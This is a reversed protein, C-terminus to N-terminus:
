WTTVTVAVTPCAALGNAIATKETADVTLGFRVKVVVWDTLYECRFAVITPLWAAPDRDSKSSNSSKSVARLSRPDGLDNAFARRKTSTWAYAGSDWAEKLAVVHDIDFALPDTGTVGDYASVWTGGTLACKAGVRVPTLSEAILVERRTDCGDRDDDVWHTFLSRSYGTTWEASVVLRALLEPATGTVTSAAGAGAPVLGVVLVAPLVAALLRRLLTPSRKVTPM